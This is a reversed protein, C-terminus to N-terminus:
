EVDNRWADDRARTIERQLLAELQEPAPQTTFRGAYRWPQATLASKTAARPREFLVSWEHPYCRLLCAHVRDVQQATQDVLYAVSLRRMLYCTEFTSLLPANGLRPNIIVVTRGGAQQLLGSLAAEANVARDAASPAVVVFAGDRPGIANPHGLVSVPMSTTFISSGALTADASSAFLLKVHSKSAPLGLDLLPRAIDHAFATLETIRFSEGSTPDLEPAAAEVVLRRQGTRIAGVLARAAQTALGEFSSPVEVFWSPAEAVEAEPIEM